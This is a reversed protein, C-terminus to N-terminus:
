ASPLFAELRSGGSSTHHHLNNSHYPGIALMVIADVNGEVIDDGYSQQNPPDEECLPLSPEM